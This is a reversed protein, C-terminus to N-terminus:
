LAQKVDPDSFVARVSDAVDDTSEFLNHRKNLFDPNDQHRDKLNDGYKCILMHDRVVDYFDAPFIDEIFSHHFPHTGVEAQGVRSLVHDRCRSRLDQRSPQVAETPQESSMLDM